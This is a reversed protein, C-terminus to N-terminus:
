QEIRRIWGCWKCRAFDLPAHTGDLLRQFWSPHAGSPDKGHNRIQEKFWWNLLRRTPVLLRERALAVASADHQVYGSGNSFACHGDDYREGISEMCVLVEAILSERADADAQVDWRSGDSARWITMTESM